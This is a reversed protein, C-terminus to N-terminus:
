SPDIIRHREVFSESQNLLTKFDSPTIDVGSFKKSEITLLITKLEKLAEDSLTKKEQKYRELLKTIESIRMQVSATSAQIDELARLTKSDTDLALSPELPECKSKKMVRRWSLWAFPLSVGFIILSIQWLARSKRIPTIKFEKGEVTIIGAECNPECTYPIKFDPIESSGLQLPKFEYDFAKNFFGTDKKVSQGIRVLEFNKAAISPVAFRYKEDNGTWKFTVRLTITQDIPLSASSPTYQSSTTLDASDALACTTSAYFFVFTLLVLRIQQSKDM